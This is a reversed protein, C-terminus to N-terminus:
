VSNCCLWFSPSPHNPTGTRPLPRGPARSLWLKQIIHPYLLLFGSRECVLKKRLGVRTKAEAQKRCGHQLGCDAPWSQAVHARPKGAGQLDSVAGSGSSMHCKSMDQKHETKSLWFSFANIQASKCRSAM